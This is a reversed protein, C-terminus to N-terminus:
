QQAAGLTIQDQSVSRVPITGFPLTPLPDEYINFEKDIRNGQQWFCQYRMMEPYQNGGREKENVIQVELRGVTNWETEHQVRCGRNRSKLEESVTKGDLTLTNTNNVQDWIYFRVTKLDVGEPILYTGDENPPNRSGSWRTSLTGSLWGM